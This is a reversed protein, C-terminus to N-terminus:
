SFREWSTESLGTVCINKEPFWEEPRYSFSGRDSGYIVLTFPNDPYDAGMNILTPSGGNANKLYKGGFFREAFILRIKKIAKKGVITSIFLIILIIDAIWRNM